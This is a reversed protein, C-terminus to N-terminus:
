NAPPLKWYPHPEAESRAAVTMGVADPNVPAGDKNLTDAGRVSSGAVSELGVVSPVIDPDPREVLMSDELSAVEDAVAEAVAVDDVDM